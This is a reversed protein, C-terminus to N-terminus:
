LINLVDVLSEEPTLFNYKINRQVKFNLVFTVGIYLATKSKSFADPYKLENLVNNKRCKM